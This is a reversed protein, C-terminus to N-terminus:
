VSPWTFDNKYYKSKLKALDREWESIAYHFKKVGNKQGKRLKVNHAITYAISRLGVLPVAQQLIAWRKEPTIGTIQYGMKKLDSENRMQNDEENQYNGTIETSPWKFHDNNLKESTNKKKKNQNKNINESSNNISGMVEVYGSHKISFNISKLQYDNVYAVGGGNNSLVTTRLYGKLKKEYQNNFLAIDVLEETLNQSNNTGIDVSNLKTVRGLKRIQKPITTSKNQTILEENLGDIKKEIELSKQHIVKRFKEKEIPHFTKLDSIIKYIKTSKGNWSKLITAVDHFISLDHNTRDKILAQTNLNKLMKETEDSLFAYWLLKTILDSSLNEKWRWRAIMDRFFGIFYKDFDLMICTKYFELHLPLLVRKSVDSNLSHIWQNFNTKLRERFTSKEAFNNIIKFILLVNENSIKHISNTTNLEILLDLFADVSNEDVEKINRITKLVLLLGESDQLKIAMRFLLIAQKWCDNETSQTDMIQHCLRVLDNRLNAKEKEFELLEGSLQRVQNQQKVTELQEEYRKQNKKFEDFVVLSINDLEKHLNITISKKLHEFTEKM